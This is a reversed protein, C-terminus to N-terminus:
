YLLLYLVSLNSILTILFVYLGILIPTPSYSSILLWIKKIMCASLVPYVFACLIIYIPCMARMSLSLITFFFLVTSVLQLLSHYLLTLIPLHHWQPNPFIFIWFPHLIVISLSALFLVSSCALVCLCNCHWSFLFFMIYATWVCSENILYLWSCTEALMCCGDSQDHFYFSFM